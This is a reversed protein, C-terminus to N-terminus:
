GRELSEAMYTCGSMISPGFFMRQVRFTEKFGANALTSIISTEKAPAFLSIEMAQLRNMLTKLLEIALNIKGKRCVMPGLEAMGRFVKAVAYGSVENNESTVYCLNDTDSIIPELMKRRSAGFCSLDFDVIRNMDETTARRAITKAESSFGKGRLVLFESDSKFGLRRYFPIREMYAYLGVTKVNRSKLYELAHTVLVSGAGRNRKNENVILNGFWAVKGFNVTTALGIRESDDFLVFCGEPELEVSFEFDQESLGWGMHDTIAVAFPFDERSMTKVHFTILRVKKALQNDSRL